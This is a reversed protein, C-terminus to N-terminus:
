FTPPELGESRAFSPRKVVPSVTPRSKQQVRYPVARVPKERKPHGVGAERKHEGLDWREARRGMVLSTGRPRTAPHGTHRAVQHHPFLRIPVRSPSVDWARLGKMCVSLSVSAHCGAPLRRRAHGEVLPVPGLDETPTTRPASVDKGGPLGSSLLCKPSRDIM